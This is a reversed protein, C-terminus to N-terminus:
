EESEKEIRHHPIWLLKDVDVGCEMAKSVLKTRVSETISAERSLIWCYKTSRGIVLAHEYDGEIAIVNYGSYFPGFFKVELVGINKDGAIRASGDAVQWKGKKFNYGMNKVDITGDDNLCYETTTNDMYREWYVDLRAIEYWKGLYRDIDFDKIPEVNKPTLNRYKSWLFAGTAATLGAVALAILGKKTGRKNNNDAM